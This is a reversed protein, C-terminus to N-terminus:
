PLTTNGKLSNRIVPQTLTAMYAVMTALAKDYDSKETVISLAAAQADIGAQENTLRDYDFIVSPKEIPDLM